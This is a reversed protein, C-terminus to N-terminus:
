SESLIGVSFVKEDGDEMSRIRSIESEVILASSICVVLAWPLSM